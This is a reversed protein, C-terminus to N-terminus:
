APVFPPPAIRMVAEPFKIMFPVTLAFPADSGLLLMLPDPPPDPPDTHNNVPPVSEPEPVTEALPPLLDGVPRPVFPMPPPPRIAM